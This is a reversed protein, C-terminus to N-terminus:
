QLEACAQLDYLRRFSGDPGNAEDLMVVCEDGFGAQRSSSMTSWWGDDLYLYHFGAEAIQRRTGEAVLQGFEGTPMWLTRYSSSPRAFLTVARFAVSDFVEDQRRLRNWYRDAMWADERTVFYSRTPRAAAVLQTSLLIVGPFMGALLCGALALRAWRRGDRLFLTLPQLGFVIWVMMATGPLRSTERVSEYQSIM